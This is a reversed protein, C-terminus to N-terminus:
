GRRVERKAERIAAQEIMRAEWEAAKRKQRIRSCAVHNQTARHKGCVDCMSPNDLRRSAVPPRIRDTM